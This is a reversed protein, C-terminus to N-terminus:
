AIMFVVVFRSRASRVAVWAWWMRGGKDARGLLVTLVKSTAIYRGPATNSSHDIMPHASHAHPVISTSTHVLILVVRGCVHGLVVLEDSRNHVSMAVQRRSIRVDLGGARM